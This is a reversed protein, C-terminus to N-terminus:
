ADEVSGFYKEYINPKECLIQKMDSDSISKIDRYIIHYCYGGTTKYSKASFFRGNTTVFYTVGKQEILDMDEMVVQAKETDYLLGNIIKKSHQYYTGSIHPTEIGDAEQFRVITDWINM